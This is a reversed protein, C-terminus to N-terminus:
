PDPMAMLQPTPQLHPEPGANSHSHHLCPALARIWCRAQSGGNHWPHLGLFIFFFFPFFFSYRFMWLMGQSLQIIAFLGGGPLYCNTGSLLSLLCTLAKRRKRFPWVYINICGYQKGNQGPSTLLVQCFLVCKFSHHSELCYAWSFQFKTALNWWNKVNRLYSSILTHAWLSLHYLPLFLYLFSTSLFFSPCASCPFLM